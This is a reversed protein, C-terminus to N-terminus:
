RVNGKVSLFAMTMVDGPTVRRDLHRNERCLKKSNGVALESVLTIAALNNVNLSILLGMEDRGGPDIELFHKDRLGEKALWVLLLLRRM